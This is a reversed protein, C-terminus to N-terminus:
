RAACDGALWTDYPLTWTLCYGNGGEGPTTRVDGRWFKLRGTPGDKLQVNDIGIPPVAVNGAQRTDSHVEIYQEIQARGTLALEQSTLLQWADGWWLWAQWVPRAAEQETQLYLWVQDGDAVAYQDYFAWAGRNTDYTYIRQRGNGSWGTETWGAELWTVGKPTDAKAMFRAAVFDYTGPRVKADRIGVRGLVGSWRGQTTAGLHHYGPGAVTASSTATTAVTTAAAPSPLPQGASQGLVPQLQTAFARCAGPSDM